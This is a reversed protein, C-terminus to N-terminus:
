LVFETSAINKLLIRRDWAYRINELACVIKEFIQFGTAKKYLFANWEFKMPEFEHFVDHSQDVPIVPIVSCKLLQQIPLTADVMDTVFIDLWAITDQDISNVVFAGITECAETVFRQLQPNSMHVFIIVRTNKPLNYKRLITARASEKQNKLNKLM